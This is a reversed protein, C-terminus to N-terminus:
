RDYATPPFQMRVEENADELAAADRIWEDLMSGITPESFTFMTEPLQVREVEDDALRDLARRLDLTAAVRRIDSVFDLVEVADKGPQVRLGRGLQQVFIRRSHTVRLFCLINVDPVDVGENFIDVATVIPIRGDRFEAMLIDRERRTQHTNVCRARRWGAGRLLHAFEEAHGITKCFVIGRPARVRGWTERLDDIIEDDRQPLFLRSNLDRLTLGKESAESVVTWDINDVLLRYNVQSLFGKAMGEAIGMRFVPAGFRASIDFKDGRWPTATLGLQPVNSTADLLTALMNEDGVHHAEDVLVFHPSWGGAVASAAAQITACVVGRGPQASSESSLLRTPVGKPIHRWMAKELQSVLEKVHAVVLIEADPNRALETRLVEGGVVTKGLGTALVLLARGTEDLADRCAAIATQQYPYPEYRNPALEPVMPSFKKLAGRDWFDVRVGVGLLRRRFAVARHGPISNTAVVARDASYFARAADVERVADEGVLGSKKWKCQFVWRLGGRSALLDGGADGKGDINRVDDFGLCWLLREIARTFAHPGDALLRDESLFAAEAEHSPDTVRMTM